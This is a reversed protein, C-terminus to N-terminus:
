RPGPQHVSWVMTVSVTYHQRLRTSASTPKLRTELIKEVLANVLGIEQM